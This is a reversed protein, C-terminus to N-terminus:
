ESKYRQFKKRIIVAIFNMSFLVGLLVIIGAAALSHFDESPRGAWNYIQVPLVTFMDMANEPLFAVYSMAGVILLPATEGIVRSISLIIGTMIGPLAAPLVQGLVVQYRRAGMAFAAYRISGPVAKIAEISTIIIVPLVLLALTLSGALISRDFGFYRVFLTLGLLGYIISPMGALNAINIKIFRIFLSKKNAYEQLYIATAVGFPIAFCATLSVVWLTGVLATKIGAKHAKRSPLNQLFDFSLFEYGQKFIHFLLVALIVLSMWTVAKCSIAFASNMIQRKSSKM